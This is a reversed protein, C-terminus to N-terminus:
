VQGRHERTIKVFRDLIFFHAAIVAPWFLFLDVYLSDGFFHTLVKYPAWLVFIASVGEVLAITGLNSQLTSGCHKCTLTESFYANPITKSCVPCKLM